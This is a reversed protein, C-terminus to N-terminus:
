GEVGLALGVTIFNQPSMLTYSLRPRLFLAPRPPERKATLFLRFEPGGELQAIAEPGRGGFINSSASGGPEPYLRQVDAVGLSFRGFLGVASAPAVRYDVFGLLVDAGGGIGPDGGLSVGEGGTDAINTEYTLGLALAFRLRYWASAGLWINGQAGGIGVHAEGGVEGREATQAQASSASGLMLGACAVCAACLRGHVGPVPRRGARAFGRSADRFLRNILPILRLTPLV